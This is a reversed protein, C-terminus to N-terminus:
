RGLEQLCRRFQLRDGVVTIGMDRLDDDSLLPALSGTIKHKKVTDEYEGLGQGRLWNGLKSADWKQFGTIHEEEAPAGM